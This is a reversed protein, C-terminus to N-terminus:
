SGGSSVHGPRTTRGVPPQAFLGGNGGPLLGNQSGSGTSQRPPRTATPPVTPDVANPAGDDTTTTGAATTDRDVGRYTAAALGAFGITAVAGGLAVATTLEGLRRVAHDRQAARRSHALRRM